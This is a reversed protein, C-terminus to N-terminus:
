SHCPQEKKVGGVEALLPVDEILRLRAGTQRARALITESLKDGEGTSSTTELFQEEEEGRLAQSVHELASGRGKRRTRTHQEKRVFSAFHDRGHDDSQTNLYLNIVPLATPAFAALTDIQEALLNPM